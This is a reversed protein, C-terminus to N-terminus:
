EDEEEKGEEGEETFIDNQLIHLNENKSM